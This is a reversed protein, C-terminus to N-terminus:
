GMVVLLPVTAALQNNLFFQVQYRGPEPINLGMGIFAFEAPDGKSRVTLECPGTKCVLSDKPDRIEVRGVVYRQEGLDVVKVYFAIPGFTAPFGSRIFIRDFLGVLTWKTSIEDRIITDCSVLATVLPDSM